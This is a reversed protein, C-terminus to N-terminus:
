KMAAAAPIQTLQELHYKIGDAWMRADDGPPLNFADINGNLAVTGRVTVDYRNPHFEILLRRGHMELLMEYYSEHSESSLAECQPRPTGALLDVGTINRLPVAQAAALHLVTPLIDMHNSPQEFIQPTIGAGFILCPVRMQSESWRGGHAMTGDDWLSEGHDGTIVVITKTLDVGALFDAVISDIYGCSNKYRNKGAELDRAPDFPLVHWKSSLAPAHKEFQPPYLYPFHTSTLFTLIFQPKGDPRTRLLEQTHALSKRDMAPWTPDVDAGPPEEAYMTVEDFFRENLYNAMNLWREHHASAVYNVRYGSKRFTVTAQPPVYATTTPWYFTPTRGTLLSYLALHTMRAGSRHQRLQMAQPALASLRPMVSPDLADARLSEIGLILVNPRSGTIIIADNDPPAGANLTPLAARVGPETLRNLPKIFTRTDVLEIGIASWTLDYPLLAHTRLLSLRDKYLHQAPAVGVIAIIYLAACAWASIRRARAGRRDGDGRGWRRTAWGIVRVMILIAVAAILFSRALGLMAQVIAYTMTRLNGAWQPAYADGVFRLYDLAHVNTRSYTNKEVIVWTVVLLLWTLLVIQALNVWRRAALVIALILGPLIVLQTKAFFLWVLPLESWSWARRGLLFESQRYDHWEIFSTICPFVLAILLLTAITLSRSVAARRRAVPTESADDGANAAAATEDAAADATFSGAESRSM